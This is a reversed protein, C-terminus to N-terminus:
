LQLQAVFQNVQQTRTLSTGALEIAGPWDAEFEPARAWSSRRTAVYLDRGRLAALKWLRRVVCCVQVFPQLLFSLM